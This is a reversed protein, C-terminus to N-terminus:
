IEIEGSEKVYLEVKRVNNPVPGPIKGHAGHYSNAGIATWWNGLTPTDSIVSNYLQSTCTIIQFENPIM